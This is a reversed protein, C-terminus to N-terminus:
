IKRIMIGSTALQSVMYVHLWWWEGKHFHVSNGLFYMASLLLSSVSIKVRSFRSGVNFAFSGVIAPFPWFLGFLPVAVFLYLLFWLKGCHSQWLM